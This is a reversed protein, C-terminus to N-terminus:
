PNKADVGLREIKMGRFSVTGKQASVNIAGHGLRMKEYQSLRWPQDPETYCVVDEGKVKVSINKGRVAIELPTWEGEDELARYLNRVHLLSGTKITGDIPGGHILVQYGSGNGDDHFALTAQSGEEALFEGQLVCNEYDAKGIRRTQGEGLSFDSIGCSIFAFAAMFIVALRLASAQIINMRYM